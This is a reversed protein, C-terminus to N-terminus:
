KLTGREAVTIKSLSILNIPVSFLTPTVLLFFLSISKSPLDPICLLSFLCSPLFSTTSVIMAISNWNKDRFVEFFSLTNVEEVEREMLQKGEEKGEKVVVFSPCFQSNM